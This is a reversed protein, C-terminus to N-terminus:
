KIIIKNKCESVINENLKFRQLLKSNKRKSFKQNIKKM